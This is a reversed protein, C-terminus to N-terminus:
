NKGITASGSRGAPPFVPGLSVRTAKLTERSISNQVRRSSCFWVPCEYSSHGNTTSLSSISLASSAQSSASTAGTIEMVTPGPDIVMWSLAPPM